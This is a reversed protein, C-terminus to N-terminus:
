RMKTLRTIEIFDSQGLLPVQQVLFVECPAHGELGDVLKLVPPGLAKIEVVTKSFHPM